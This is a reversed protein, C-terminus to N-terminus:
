KQALLIQISWTLRPFSKGNSILWSKQLRRWQSITLSEYMSAQAGFRVFPKLLSTVRPAEQTFSELRDFRIHQREIKALLLDPSPLPLATCVVNAKKAANHWEPFSGKVPCAIALWGGPALADFWEKLREEPKNLWHLVFSSAILTPPETLKPLGSNLNFIKKTKNEPHQKLMNESGDVRIVSQTPFIRELENALLGTGSGLDFWPGPLLPKKSCQQALKSAFIKQLIAVSNYKQSADDFNQIVLRQLNQKM